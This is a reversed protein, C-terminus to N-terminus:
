SCLAFGDDHKTFDEMLRFYPAGRAGGFWTAQRHCYPTIHEGRYLCLLCTPRRLLLRTLSYRM